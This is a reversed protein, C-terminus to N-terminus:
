YLGSNYTSRLFAINHQVVDTDLPPVDVKQRKMEPGESTDDDPIMGPAVERRGFNGREKLELQKRYCYDGLAWIESRTCIEKFQIRKM